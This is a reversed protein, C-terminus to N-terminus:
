MCLSTDRGVVVSLDGPTEVHSLGGFGMRLSPLCFVKKVGLRQMDWRMPINLFGKQM